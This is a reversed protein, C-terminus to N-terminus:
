KITFIKQYLFRSLGNPTTIWLFQSQQNQWDNNIYMDYIYNDFLGNQTTLYEYKGSQEYYVIIGDAYGVFLIGPAYALANIRTDPSLGIITVRQWSAQNLSDHQVGIPFSIVRGFCAFYLKDNGRVIDSVGFDFSGDPNNVQSFRKTRKDYALLNNDTGILLESGNLFLTRVNNLRHGGPLFIQDLTLSKPNYLYLSQNTSIWYTNSDQVLNTIEETRILDFIKFSYFNSKYPPNIGAKTNFYSWEDSIPNYRVFSRPYDINEFWLGEDTTFIFPSPKNLGFRYHNLMRTSSLNYILIGYGNTGVWLRNFDKYFCTISYRNFEYDIYQYPTLFTYSRIQSNSRAGYWTITTPLSEAQSFNLLRKDMRMTKPKSVDFYLYQDAIGISNARFPLNVNFRMQTHPYFGTLQNGDESLIWLIGIEPDYSSSKIPVSIGDSTTITRTLNGYYKDMVFIGNSVTIYADFPSTSISRIESMQPFYLWDSPTYFYGVLNILLCVTSVIGM